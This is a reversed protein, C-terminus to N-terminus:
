LPLRNSIYRGNKVKYIGYNCSFCDFKIHKIISGDFINIITLTDNQLVTITDNIM